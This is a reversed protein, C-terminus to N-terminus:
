AIEKSQRNNYDRVNQEMCSSSMTWLSAPVVEGTNLNYALNECWLQKLAYYDLGIERAFASIHRRTTASYLGTCIVWGDSNVLVVDTWYSTMVAGGDSYRKVHANAYPMFKLKDISM